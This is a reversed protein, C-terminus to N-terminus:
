AGSSPRSRPRPRRRRCVYIDRLAPYDAGYDTPKELGWPQLLPMDVYEGAADKVVIKIQPNGMKVSEIGRDVDGVYLMQLREDVVLGYRAAVRTQIVASVRDDVGDYNADAGFGLPNKLDLVYVGQSLDCVYLKRSERSFFMDGLGGADSLVFAGVKDFTAGRNAIDLIFVERSDPLTFFAFDGTENEGFRKDDDLDQGAAEYEGVRGDNDKDLYGYKLAVDLGQV